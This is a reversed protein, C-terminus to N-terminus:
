TAFDVQYQDAAPQAVVRCGEESLRDAQPLLLDKLEGDRACVSLRHKIRRPGGTQTTIIQTMYVTRLDREPGRRGSRYILLERRM